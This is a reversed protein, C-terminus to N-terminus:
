VVTNSTNLSVSGNLRYEVAICFVQCRPNANPLAGLALIQRQPYWCTPTKSGVCVRLNANVGVGFRFKAKGGVGDGVGTLPIYTANPVWCLVKANAMYMEHKKHLNGKCKTGLAFGTELPIHAKSQCSVLVMKKAWDLM